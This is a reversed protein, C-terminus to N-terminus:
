DLGLQRAIVLRQIESTGEGIETLKADRLYREVPYDKMYGYGGHIQIAELSVKVATESAHLKAMAAEKTYPLHADKLRAARWVMLRSLEVQTAMDALKFQIAQFSGIKKGFQKREQAYKLSADLAAQAIGVAMAGISIRGGDLIQLFQRFGANERGLLNEGPIEVDEFVLETTDSANLGLKAYPTSIRFGPTGPEVLFASIGRTGRAPDTVATVTVVGAHSANTIFCKSGNLIWGTDTRHARTRTGGADSGAEPETLGFSALYKGQFLPPLYKEKHEQTGFYYIPSIGLSVNAAYTLGTSGCARSIEEVAIAYSVTDLGNGGHEEAFPLGLLGLEGMERIIAEPFEGTRDREAAGPAVVEQAFAHVMKKLERQEPTLDFM